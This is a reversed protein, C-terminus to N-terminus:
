ASASPRTACFKRWVGACNAPMPTIDVQCGTALFSLRLKVAWVMGDARTRGRHTVYHARAEVLEVRRRLDDYSAALAAHLSPDHM